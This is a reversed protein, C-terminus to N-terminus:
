RYYEMKRGSDFMTYYQLMRYQEVWESVETEEDFTHWQGDTTQYGFVNLVPVKEQMQLLFNTYATRPIGAQELLLAGLYNASTDMEIPQNQTDYNAWIMYPVAYRSEREELTLNDAEKGTVQEVWEESISPLHDGFICIVVPEDVKRFYELLNQIALDSERILTLYTEVDTFDKTEGKLKIMKTGNMEEINYGGHNQMTVNFIFQKKHEGQEYLEIIKDFSSQDSIHSRIYVPDQFDDMGLFDCFGFNGYVRMRNWNGKYQPHIATTEYGYNRLIDALNGVDKLNCSQYPVMATGCNAMSCGTLFEFESNATWGGYVSVYLKGRYLFDDTAYWNELFEDTCAFDGLVHLDSFTEDMIAIITPLVTDNEKEENNKALIQEAERRNYHDPAQVAMKKLLTVFSFVSGAEQYAGTVNWPDFSWGYIKELDASLLSNMCICVALSCAAAKIKRNHNRQRVPLCCLAAIGALWCLVSVVVSEPVNFEYGGAVQFATKASLLDNPMVPSGRFKGVYYNAVGFILCVTLFLALIVKAPVFCYLVFAFSLMWLINGIVFRVDMRGLNENFAREIIYFGLVPVFAMLVPTFIKWVRKMLLDQINSSFLFWLVIVFYILYVEERTLQDHHVAPVYNKIVLLFLLLCFGGKVVFSTLKLGVKLRAALKRVCFLLTMLFTGALLERVSYHKDYIILFFAPVLFYIISDANAKLDIKFRNCLYILFIAGCSIYTIEFWM